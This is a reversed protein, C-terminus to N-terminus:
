LPLFGQYLHLMGKLTERYSKQASSNWDISPLNLITHNIAWDPKHATVCLCPSLFPPIPPPSCPHICHCYHVVSETKEMWFSGVGKKEEPTCWSFLQHLDLSVQQCMPSKCLVLPFYNERRLMEILEKGQQISAKRTHSCWGPHPTPHPFSLIQDHTM